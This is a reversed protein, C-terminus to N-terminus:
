KTAEIQCGLKSAGRNTNECFDAYNINGPEQKAEIVIRLAGMFDPTSAVTSLQEFTALMVLVLIKVGFCNM